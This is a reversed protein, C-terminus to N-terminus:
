DSRRPFDALFEPQGDSEMPLQDAELRYRLHAISLEDGLGLRGIEARRGNIRIGNTSGLDRVFIADRDRSVCCHIRSVRFSPLRVDCRPHRGILLLARDLLIDDEGDLAVLRTPM